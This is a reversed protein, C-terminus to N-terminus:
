PARGGPFYRRRALRLWGLGEATGDRLPLRPRAQPQSPAAAPPSTAASRARVTVRSGRRYDRVSQARPHRALLASWDFVEDTAFGYAELLQLVAPVTPRGVLTQGGYAFPDLTAQAQNEPQDLHLEVYSKTANPVVSSDVILHDPGLDRIRKMLETHRYTHYLFGLCLIADVDFAQERLVDFIDGCIFSYSTDDEDYFELNNRANEVLDRRAEIGTVHSAGTRLAALTWRGDHSAIDLVRAGQFLDRNASFIAEYRLNLREPNSFTESTEFFRHFNDYFV